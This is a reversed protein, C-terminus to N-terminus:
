FLEVNDGLGQNTAAPESGPAPPPAPGGAMPSEPSPQAIPEAGPAAQAEHSVVAAAPEPEAFLEFEPAAVNAPGAALVGTHAAHESAMTYNAKLRDIKQSAAADDGAANDKGAWAVLDEFFGVSRPSAEAVSDPFQVNALVEGVMEAFGAQQRTINKILLPIASELEALKRRSTESEALLVEEETEGLSRFDELRTRLNTIMAATQNLATRMEDVQQIVDESIMRVRGALVELTAGDPAHIAFVQANLGAHRVDGALSTAQGTCDIFSAQLPEFAAIIDAIKRVSQRVVGLVGTIGAQCQHAVETNLTTSGMKIATSAAAGAEARLSQMGSKLSGAAENLQVFVNQVQQLQIQGAHHVFQRAEAEATAEATGTAHLHTGMEAMAEAVHEIKQRTIDHCQQAMVMSGIDRNVAQNLQALDTTGAKCNLLSEGLAHLQGRCAALTGAVKGREQQISASIQGILNRALCESAALDDFQRDLAGRVDNVTKNVSAALTFFAEQVEVPHRSAEIRFTMTIFNLPLLVRMLQDRRLALHALRERLESFMAFVHDYQEYSALVLDESKKLLQFAFQVGAEDAQGLTLDHLMRCEAQIESLKGALRELGEGTALFEEEMGQVLSLLAQKEGELRGAWGTAEVLGKARRRTPVLLWLRGGLRRFRGPLVRPAGQRPTQGPATM